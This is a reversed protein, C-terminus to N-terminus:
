VATDHCGGATQVQMSVDYYTRRTATDYWREFVPESLEIGDFVARFSAIEAWLADIDPAPEDLGTDKRALICMKEPLKTNTVTHAM